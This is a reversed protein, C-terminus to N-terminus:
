FLKLIVQWILHHTITAFLQYFFPKEQQQLQWILPQQQQHHHHYPFFTFLFFMERFLVHWLFISKVETQICMHSLSNKLIISNVLKPRRAVTTSFVSGLLLKAHILTNPSKKCIRKVIVLLFFTILAREKERIYPHIIYHLRSKLLNVKLM